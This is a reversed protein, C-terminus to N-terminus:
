ATTAGCLSGGTPTATDGSPDGNGPSALVVAVAAVETHDDHGSGEDTPDQALDFHNSRGPPVSTAGQVRGM